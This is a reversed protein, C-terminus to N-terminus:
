DTQHESTVSWPQSAIILPDLFVNLKEARNKGNCYKIYEWIAFNAIIEATTGVSIPLGCASVETTEDDTLTGYWEDAEEGQTFSYVNGYNSAMRVDIGLHKPNDPKLIFSTGLEKRAAMSDVAFFTVGEHNCDDVSAKDGIFKLGGTHPNEGTKHKYWDAAADTKLVGIHDKFYLQNPLNHAEVKDFDFITIDSVGLEALAAFIRSGIAGAGILRVPVAVSPDFISYHRTIDM